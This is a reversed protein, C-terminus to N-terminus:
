EELSNVALIMEAKMPTVQLYPVCTIRLNMVHCCEYRQIPADDNNADSDGSYLLISDLIDIQAHMKYLVCREDDSEEEVFGLEDDSGPFFVEDLGDDYPGNDDSDECDLLHM